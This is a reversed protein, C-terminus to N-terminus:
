GDPCLPSSSEEEKTKFFEIEKEEIFTANIQQIQIYKIKPRSNNSRAVTKIEANSLNNDGYNRELEYQYVDELYGKEQQNMYNIFKQVDCNRILYLSQSEGDEEYIKEFPIEGIGWFSCMIYPPEDNLFTHKHIITYGEVKQGVYLFLLSLERSKNM